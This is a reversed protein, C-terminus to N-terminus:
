PCSDRPFLADGLMAAVLGLVAGATVLLISRTRSLGPALRQATPPLQESFEPFYGGKPLAILIPDAKGESEYYADLRTRLRGAEVRVIPDTKPDFSPSRGLVEVGIISEKIEERRGDLARDIVFRLFRSSRDAGAFAASALMRDLQARVQDAEM